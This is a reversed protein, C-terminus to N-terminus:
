QKKQVYAVALLWQITSNDAAGRVHALRCIATLILKKVLTTAGGWDSGARGPDEKHRFVRGLAVSLLGFLVRFGVGTGGNAPRESSESWWAPSSAAWMLPM